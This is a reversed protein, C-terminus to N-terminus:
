RVDDIVKKTKEVVRIDTIRTHPYEGKDDKLLYKVMDWINLLCVSVGCLAEMEVGTRGFSVVTVTASIHDDGVDFGVDVKNIPINHCLPIMRATDKVANIAAVESVSFVDGKKVEGSKIMRVTEISLYIRGSAVATRLVDKKGSVDVMNVKM